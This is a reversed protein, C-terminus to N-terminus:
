AHAPVHGLVRAVALLARDIDDRTVEYSTVARYRPGGALLVGEERLRLLFEQTTM